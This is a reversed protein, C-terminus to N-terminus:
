GGVYFVWRKSTRQLVLTFVLIVVFLLVAMAAGYGMKFQTFSKRYLHLMYFLTSNLPGGGTMLFASNFVQFAGIFGTILTFFITPTMLPVTIRVLLVPRPSLPTEGLSVNIVDSM